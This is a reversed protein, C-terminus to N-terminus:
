AGPSPAAAPHDAVDGLEVVSGGPERCYVALGSPWEHGPPWLTVPGLPEAGLRELAALSAAVDDVVFAIHGTGPATTAATEGRPRFCLLELGHGTLPSRLQAVDCVLEPIGMMAGMPGEIGQVQYQLEYGFAQQYFTASRSVDNVALATHDWSGVRAAGVAHAPDSM